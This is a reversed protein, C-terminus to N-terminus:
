GNNVTYYRTLVIMMQLMERCLTRANDGPEVKSSVFPFSLVPLYTIM